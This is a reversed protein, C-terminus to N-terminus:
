LTANTDARRWDTGDSYALGPTSGGVDACYVLGGTWAEADPLSAVDAFVPLRVPRLPYEALAFRQNLQNVIDRLAESAGPRLRLSM